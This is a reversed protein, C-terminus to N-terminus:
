RRHPVFKFRFACVCAVTMRETEKKWEFFGNHKCTSRELVPVTKFVPVCEFFYKSKSTCTECTCKAISIYHPYKNKRYFVTFRWPCLSKENLSTRNRKHEDCQSNEVFSDKDFIQNQLDNHFDPILNQLQTEEFQRFQELYESYIKVFHNKGYNKCERRSTYILEESYNKLQCNKIYLLQIIFIKLLIFNFFFM